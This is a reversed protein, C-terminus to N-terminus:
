LTGHQEPGSRILTPGISTRLLATRLALAKKSSLGRSPCAVKPSSIRGQWFLILKCCYMQKGFSKYVECVENIEKQVALASSLEGSQVHQWAQIFLHPIFNYSTGIGGHAGLMLAPAMLQDPGSFVIQDDRLVTDVLRQIMYIELGSFKFGAIGPIRIMGRFVVTVYTGNPM